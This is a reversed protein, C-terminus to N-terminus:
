IRRHQAVYGTQLGSLYLQLDAQREEAELAAKKRQLEEKKLLLQQVQNADYSLQMQGEPRRQLSLDQSPNM